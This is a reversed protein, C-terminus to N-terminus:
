DNTESVLKDCGSRCPKVARSVLCEVLYLSLSLCRVIILSRPFPAQHSLVYVVLLAAKQKPEVPEVPDPPPPLTPIYADCGPLPQDM